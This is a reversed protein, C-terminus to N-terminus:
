RSGHRLQSTMPSELGTRSSGYRYHSLIAVGSPNWDVLAAMLLDPFDHRLRAVFLQTAMDPMGRATVIICSPEMDFMRDEVLRQFIADKEVIVCCKLRYYIDRQTATRGAQVLEHVLQLIAFMRTLKYASEGQRHTLSLLQTRNQLQLPAAHQSHAAAANADTRAVVELVPLQGEALATLSDIIVAEIRALVEEPSADFDVTPADVSM